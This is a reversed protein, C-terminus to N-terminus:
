LQILNMRMMLITIRKKRLSKNDKQNQIEDKNKKNKVSQSSNEEEMYNTDIDIIERVMIEDKQLKDNWDYFQQATIPSQSLLM